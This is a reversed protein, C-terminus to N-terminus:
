GGQVEEGRLAALLAARPSKGSAIVREQPDAMHHEVVEWAVDSDDGGTPVDVSRVTWHEEEMVALLDRERSGAAPRARRARLLLSEVYRWGQAFHQAHHKRQGDLAHHAWREYDEARRNAHEAAGLLAGLTHAPVEEEGAASVPPAALRRLERCGRLVSEGWERDLASDGAGEAYRLARDIDLAARTDTSPEAPPQTAEDRDVGDVYDAVQERAQQLLIVARTLRVDAGAAEVAQVADYIAREAPTWKDMNIRRPFSDTDSAM